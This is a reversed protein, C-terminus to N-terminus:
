SLWIIVQHKACLSFESLNMVFIILLFIGRLQPVHNQTKKAKINEKHKHNPKKRNRKSDKGDLESLHFFSDV